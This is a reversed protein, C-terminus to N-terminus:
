KVLRQSIRRGYSQHAPPCHLGVIVVDKQVEADMKKFILYNTPNTGVLEVARSDEDEIVNM